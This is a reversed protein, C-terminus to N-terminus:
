LPASYVSTWLSNDGVSSLNNTSISIDRLKGHTANKNLKEFAEKKRSVARAQARPDGVKKRNVGGVSTGRNTPQQTFNKKKPPGKSPHRVRPDAHSSKGPEMLLLSGLGRGKGGKWDFKKRFLHIFYFEVM